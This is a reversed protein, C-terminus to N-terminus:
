LVLSCVRSRLSRSGILQTAGPSKHGGSQPHMTCGTTHQRRQHLLVHSEHKPHSVVLLLPDSSVQFQSASIPLPQSLTAQVGQAEGVFSQCYILIGVAYQHGLPIIM